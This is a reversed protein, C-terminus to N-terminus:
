VTFNELHESSLLRAIASASSASREALGLLDMRLTTVEGWAPHVFGLKLDEFFAARYLPTLRAYTYMVFEAIGNSQGFMFALKLMGVQLFRTHKVVRWADDVWFGGIQAVNTDEGVVPKLDLYREIELPRQVVVRVASVVRGEADVAVLHSAADDFEDLGHHGLELQYIGSRRQLAELREDASAVKFTLGSFIRSWSTEM